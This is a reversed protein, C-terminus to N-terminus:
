EGDGWLTLDSPDGNPMRDNRWRTGGAQKRVPTRMPAPASLRASSRM